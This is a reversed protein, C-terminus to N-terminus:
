AGTHQASASQDDVGVSREANAEFHPCSVLREVQLWNESLVARWALTDTVSASSRAVDLTQNRVKSPERARGLDRMVHALLSEDLVRQLDGNLGGEINGRVDDRVQAEAFRPRVTFQEIEEFPVAPDLRRERHGEAAHDSKAVDEHVAIVRNIEVDQAINQFVTEVVQQEKNVADAGMQHRGQGITYVTSRDRLLLSLLM